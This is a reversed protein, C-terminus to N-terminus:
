GNILEELFAMAEPADSQGLWFVANKRLDHNPETRAIDMLKRLMLQSEQQSYVFILQEKVETNSVEDYLAILEDTAAENQGAWFLANRRLDSPEDTDKAIAILWKAPQDGDMQSMSFIVKEKLDSDDLQRYAESLFDFSDSGEEQGLWFIANERVDRSVGADTVLARLAQLAEPEELQSLAFVAKEGLSSGHALGVLFGIVEPGGSQGLWFVANERLDVPGDGRAIRMLASQGDGYETQSLAFVASERVDMPISGDTALDKLEAVVDEEVANGLWFIAAERTDVEAGSARALRVLPGALDVSDALVAAFVLDSGADASAREAITLLARGTSRAPLRGLDTVAAGASPWSARGVRATADRVRGDRVELQVFAPGPICPEDNWRGWQVRHRNNMHIEDDHGCVGPRTTYSLRLTGRDTDGVQRALDDQANSLRPAVLMAAALFTAAIRM